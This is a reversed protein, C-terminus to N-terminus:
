VNPIEHDAGHGVGEAGSRKVNSGTCCDSKTESRLGEAPQPKLYFVRFSVQMWDCLAIVKGASLMQGSAGRSLDTFTVGIEDALARYGRGDSALRRQLLRAFERWDYDARAPDRANQLGAV